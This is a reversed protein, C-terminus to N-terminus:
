YKSILCSHRFPIWVLSVERSTGLTGLVLQIGQCQEIAVYADVDAKVREKSLDEVVAFRPQLLPGHKELPQQVQQFELAFVWRHVEALHNESVVCQPILALPIQIQALSLWATPQAQALHLM